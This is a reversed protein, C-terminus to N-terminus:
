PRRRSCRSSGSPPWTLISAVCENCCCGQRRLTTTVPIPRTQPTPLVAGSSQSPRSAPRLPIASILAKSRVPWGTRMAASTLSKSGSRKMSFFSARLIPRKMWKAIAAACSAMSWEPRLISSELRSRTPTWMPEPIPPKSTMSRSCETISAPPGRLIEGKKMGPAMMLRAAPWTEMRKPARPGLSAVAVAHAEEAWEMPSAKRMMSRPSASAMIAPPVSAAM